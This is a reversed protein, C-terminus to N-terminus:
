PKLPYIIGWFTPVKLLAIELNKEGRWFWFSFFISFNTTTHFGKQPKLLLPRCLLPRCLAALRVGALLALLADRRPLRAQRFRPM